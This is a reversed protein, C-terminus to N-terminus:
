SGIRRDARGRITELVGFRSIDGRDVRVVLSKAVLSHAAAIAAPRSLGTV